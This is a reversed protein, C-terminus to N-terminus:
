NRAKRLDEMLDHARVFHAGFGNEVARLALATALHTKGVGPPGLLLINSAEASSPWTPWNGSWASM